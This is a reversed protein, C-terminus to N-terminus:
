CSCTSRCESYAVFRKKSAEARREMDQAVQVAQYQRRLQQRLLWLQRASKERYFDLICIFIHYLYFTFLNRWAGPSGHHTDYLWVAFAFAVTVVFLHVARSGQLSIVGISAIPFGAIFFNQYSKNPCKPTLTNAQSDTLTLLSVYEV